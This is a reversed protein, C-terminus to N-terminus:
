MYEQGKVTNQLVFYYTSCTSSNLFTDYFPKSIGKLIVSIKHNWVSPRWGLCLLDTANETSSMQTRFPLLHGVKVKLLLFFFISHFSVNHDRMRKNEVGLDYM